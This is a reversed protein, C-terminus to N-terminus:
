GNQQPGNGGHQSEDDIWWKRMPPDDHRVRPIEYLNGADGYPRDVPQNTESSGGNSRGESQSDPGHAAIENQNHDTM